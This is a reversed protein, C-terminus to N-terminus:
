FRLFNLSCLLSSHWGFYTGYIFFSSIGSLISLSLRTSCLLFQGVAGSLNRLSMRFPSLFIFFKISLVGDLAPVPRRTSITSNSELFFLLHWLIIRKFLKSLYSTLSIPRFSAPSELPKGMKHIPIVSSTKWISSLSHLSLSFNFIDILCDM